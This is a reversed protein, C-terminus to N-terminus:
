ENIQRMIKIALDRKYKIWWCVIQHMNNPYNNLLNPVITKLNAWNNTVDIPFNSGFVFNYFNFDKGGSTVLDAIPMCMMEIAEYLRFSDIVVAGSPCPVIKASSMKEYYEAFAYGKAFGDTANYLVNNIKKINLDLEKRRQHTIQGSFFLDFDKNKYKPINRKIHEPSGLPLKNYKEHKEHPYQVWIEINNHKIKEVDFTGSEDGTIFLVVRSIRQLENSIKEEYIIEKNDFWTCSMDLHPGSVVVFARDCEPLEFVKKTEINNIEFLEKVLGYDWKDSPCTKKDPSYIYANIM